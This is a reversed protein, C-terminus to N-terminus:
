SWEFNNEKAQFMALRRKRRRATAPLVMGPDTEKEKIKLGSEDQLTSTDHRRAKRIFIAVDPRTSSWAFRGLKGGKKKRERAEEERARGVPRRIWAQRATLEDETSLHKRSRKQRGRWRGRRV